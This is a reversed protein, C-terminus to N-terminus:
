GALEDGVGVCSFTDTYLATVIDVVESHLCSSYKVTEVSIRL